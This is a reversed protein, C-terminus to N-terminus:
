SCEAKLLRLYAEAMAQNVSDWDYARSRKEGAKGHTFRLSADRVYASLADAYAAFDGPPIVAGHVGHVILNTGGTAQAVVVPIGCAMAELTVNGFTETLSPNSLVDLSGIM